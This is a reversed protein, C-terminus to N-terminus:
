LDKAYCHVEAQSNRKNLRNIIANGIDSINHISRTEQRKDSTPELALKYKTAITDTKQHNIM